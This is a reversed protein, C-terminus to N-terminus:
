SPRPAVQQAPSGASFVSGRACAGAAGVELLHRWPAGLQTQLKPQDLAQEGVAQLTSVSRLKIQCTAAQDLGEAWEVGLELPEGLRGQLRLRLGRTCEQTAQGALRQWQSELAPASTLRCPSGASLGRAEIRGPGLRVALRGM